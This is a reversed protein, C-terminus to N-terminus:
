PYRRKPPAIRSRGRGGPIPHLISLIFAILVKREAMTASTGIIAIANPPAASACDGAGEAAGDALGDADGAGAAEALGAGAGVAEGAAEALGAGAAVGAGAAEAVGPVEGAGTALGDAAGEGGAAV